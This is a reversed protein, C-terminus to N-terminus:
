MREPVKIGLLHLGQKLTQGVTLTLALRFESKESELIRQKQYFFNFKQALDFLYNCLTNPAYNLAASQAMEPFHYLARLLLLEEAELKSSQTKSAESRLPLKSNANQAKRLISQTRAYTYQLYPGSNGDLAVSKEIDFEVNQGTRVKLVSYKIAGIAIQSLVEEKKDTTIKGEQILKEVKKKIQDVLWDITLIEGTRSSIKRDTLTVMGMSIHDQKGKYKKPDLLELAKFVVKFYGAQENAVVHIKQDFPFAEYEKHATCMEKGEYTPNGAQTVFVQNHLGYKKGPFIVAGQDEQFVKGVNELVIKKGCEATESEFFLKDFKTYFQNYFNNFYDLSWQRTKQYLPWIGPAKQYLKANIGDIEDKRSEYDLNGRVYGKGLFHAKEIDSWKDVQELSLNDETMLKQIGYLAKAVHPGIDGQYNARFVSASQSELLRALAEGTILTRMHGIHMEKHTNPHAFEVMIKKGALTHGKANLSYKKSLPTLSNVLLDNSIWFNIFGPKVAEARDTNQIKYKTNLIKVIENALDLPSKFVRYKSSSVQYRGFTIMAINSSYDGHQSDTPIEVVPEVELGTLEKIAKKIALSIEDRIMFM